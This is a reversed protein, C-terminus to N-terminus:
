YYYGGGLIWAFLTGFFFIYLLIIAIINIIAGIMAKKATKPKTDRWIFYLIWGVVPICCGIAGFLMGNEENLPGAEVGCQPCQKAMIHLQSGCSVCYKCQGQSQFNNGRPANNYGENAYSNEQRNQENNFQSNMNNSNFSNAKNLNVEERVVQGERNSEGNPRDLIQTDGSDNFLPEQNRLGSNDFSDDIFIDNTENLCKDCYGKSNNTPKGCGMCYM